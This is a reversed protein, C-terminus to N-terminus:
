SAAIEIAGGQEGSLDVEFVACQMGPVLNFVRRPQLDLGVANTRITVVGGPKKIQLRRADVREIPEDRTSVVPVILRAGADGKVTAAISVTKVTITYTIEYTAKAPTPQGDKATLM